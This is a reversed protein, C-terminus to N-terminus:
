QQGQFIDEVSPVASSRRSSGGNADETPKRRRGLSVGWSSALTALASGATGVPGPRSITRARLISGLGESASVDPSPTTGSATQPAEERTSNPISGTTPPSAPGESLATTPAAKSSSTVNGPFPRAGYLISSPRSATSSRSAPRLPSSPTHMHGHPRATSIAPATPTPTPSSSAEALPQAPTIPPPSQALLKSLSSPGALSASGRRHPAPYVRGPPSPMVAASVENALPSSPGAQPGELGTAEPEVSVRRSTTRRRSSSAPSLSTTWDEVELLYYKIGDGLGYPNTSPDRANVIRENISTIRAVIWERTQIQEAIHGSPKLFYHPFSVNFAAWPRAQSNRTPLFLALDGKAFNRFTIKGRARERYEKCQKQWKRITSGTKAIAESFAELDFERLVRLAAQPNNLDIAASPLLQTSSSRSLIAPLGVLSDATSLDASTSVGLTNNLQSQKGHSVSTRATQLARLHSERFAVAVELVETVTRRLTTVQAQLEIVAANSLKLDSRLSEENHRSERQEHAAHALEEKLGALDASLVEVEARAEKHLHTESELRAQLQHYHQELVARDGDAEAIHDRLLRDAESAQARLLREKERGRASAEDNEQRALKIQAALDEGRARASELNRLTTEHDARLTANEERAADLERRLMDVLRTQEAATSMAREVENALESRRAEVSRRASQEYGYQANLHGVESELSEVRSRAAELESNLRAKDAELTLRTELLLQEQQARAARLDELQQLTEQNASISEYSSSQRSHAIRSASLISREAMRDFGIELGDMKQLSKALLERAQAVPNSEPPYAKELEYVFHMYDMVDARELQYGAGSDDGATTHLELAPVPDDMGRAEFPLQGHVESRYVQRRKREAASFRAMVEAITQARQAFLRSFEKRRVIEILTAGYAYLMNHCRQLHNWPVKSRFDTQLGTLLTPLELLDSHAKSIKRLLSFCAATNKNKLEAITVVVDRLATDLQALAQLSDPHVDAGHFTSALDSLKEFADSARTYAAEGEELIQATSLTIRIEDAITSVTEVTSRAREFRSRLDEHAEAARDGVQRMKAPDVWDGLVREGKHQQQPNLFEPHVRIQRIIDLDANRHDLLERQRRLERDAPEAFADFTDSVALVNMDLGAAAVRTAEHQVQIASLTSAVFDRHATAANLYGSLRSAVPATAEVAPYLAPGISLRDLVADTDLDLLDKNFVVISTEYPIGLERLNDSRLRRGDSLYALVAAQNVGTVDQLFAELSGYRAAM